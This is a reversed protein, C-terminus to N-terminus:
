VMPILDVDVEYKIWYLRLIKGLEGQAGAIHRYGVAFWSAASPTQRLLFSQIALFLGVM